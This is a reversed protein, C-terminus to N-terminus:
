DDSGGDPPLPLLEGLLGIDDSGLAFIHSGLLGLRLTTLVVSACIHPIGFVTFGGKADAAVGCVDVTDDDVCCVNVFGVVVAAAGKFCCCIVVIFLVVIAGTLWGVVLADDEGDGDAM